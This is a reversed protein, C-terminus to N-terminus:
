VPIEVVLMRSHCCPCCFGNRRVAFFEFNMDIARADRSWDAIKLLGGKWTRLVRSGSVHLGLPFYDITSHIVFKDTRPSVM